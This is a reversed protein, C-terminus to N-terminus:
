DARLTVYQYDEPLEKIRQMQQQYERKSKKIKSINFYDDFFKNM